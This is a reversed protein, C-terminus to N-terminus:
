TVSSIANYAGHITVVCSNIEPICTSIGRVFSVIITITIINNLFCIHDVSFGCYVVNITPFLGVNVAGVVTVV